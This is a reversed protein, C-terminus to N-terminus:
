KKIRANFQNIQPLFSHNQDKRIGETFEEFAAQVDKNNIVSRASISRLGEAEEWFASEPLQTNWDRIPIQALVWRVLGIREQLGFKRYAELLHDAVMVALDLIEKYKKWLENYIETGHDFGNQYFYDYVGKQIILNAHQRLSGVARFEALLEDKARELAYDLVDNTDKDRSEPRSGDKLRYIIAPSLIKPGVWVVKREAKKLASMLREHEAHGHEHEEVLSGRAGPAKKVSRGKVVILPFESSKGLVFNYDPNSARYFGGINTRSDIKKFDEDNEVYLIIALPYSADISVRGKLKYDWPSSSGILERYLIEAIPIRLGEARLHEKNEILDEVRKKSALLDDVFTEAVEPHALFEANEKTMGMLDEKASWPNYELRATLDRMLRANDLMVEMRFERAHEKKKAKEGETDQPEERIAELNNKYKGTQEFPM